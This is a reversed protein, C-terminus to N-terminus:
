YSTGLFGFDHVQMGDWTWMIISAAGGKLLQKGYVLVAVTGENCPPKDTVTTQSEADMNEWPWAYLGMDKVPMKVSHSVEYVSGRSLDAVLEDECTALSEACRPL